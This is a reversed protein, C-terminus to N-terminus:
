AKHEKTRAEVIMAAWLGRVVDKVGKKTPMGGEEIDRYILEAVDQAWKPAKPYSIKINGSKKHVYVRLFPNEGKEIRQWNKMNM